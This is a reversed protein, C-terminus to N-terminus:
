EAVERVAPAITQDPFAGNNHGTAGSSCNRANEKCPSTRERWVIVPWHYLRAIRRLGRTPNVAFPRGVSELMWRDNASDGYASCQALDLRWSSALQRIGRAKAKGFMAEGAVRGSWRGNQKELQTACVHVAAECGLQRLAAKLLSAAHLALPELTGTVLVLLHGQRAHWAAREFAERYSPLKGVEIQWDAFLSKEGHRVSSLYAKNGHFMQLLGKPALRFAEVLWLLYNGPPIQKRRRLFRFYRRELSPEPFLTGDVDFFAAVRSTDPEVNM